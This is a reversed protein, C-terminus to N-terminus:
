GPREIVALVHLASHGPEVERRQVTPVRVLETVHHDPGTRDLSIAQLEHTRTEAELGRRSHDTKRRLVAQHVGIAIRDNGTAVPAPDHPDLPQVCLGNAGQTGLGLGGAFLVVSKIPNSRGRWACPAATAGTCCHFRARTTECRSAPAGASPGRSPSEITWSKSTKVALRGPVQHSDVVNAAGSQCLGRSPPRIARFATICCKATDRFVPLNRSIENHLAVRSCACRSLTSTATCISVPTM